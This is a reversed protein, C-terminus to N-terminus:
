KEWKAKIEAVKKGLAYARLARNYRVEDILQSLERVLAVQALTYYRHKQPITHAPIHGLQEWKRVTEVCKGIAGCLGGIRVVQTPIGNIEKFQEPQRGLRPNAARYRRQQDKAKERVAEDTRYAKKRKESLKKKNKLYWLHYSLKKAAETTM